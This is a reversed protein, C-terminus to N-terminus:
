EWTVWAVARASWYCVAGVTGVVAIPLAATFALAAFFTM